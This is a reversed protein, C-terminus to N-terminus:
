QLFVPPWASAWPNSSAQWVLQDNLDHLPSTNIIQIYFSYSDYNNNPHIKNINLPANIKISYSTIRMDARFM